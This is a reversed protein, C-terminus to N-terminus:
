NWQGYELQMLEKEEGTSYWVDAYTFKVATECGDCPKACGWSGDKKVRVVVVENAVWNARIMAAIEAHLFIAEENYAFKLQKPHSVKSNNGFIREKGRLVCAVIKAGRVPKVDKALKACKEAANIIRQPPTM